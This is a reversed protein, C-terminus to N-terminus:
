DMEGTQQFHEVLMKMKLIELITFVGQNASNSLFDINRLYEQYAVLTNLNLNKDVIFPQTYCSFFFNAEFCTVPKKQLLLLKELFRLSSKGQYILDMIEFIQILFYDPYKEKYEKLKKDFKKGKRKLYFLELFAAIPVDGITKRFTDIAEKPNEDDFICRLVEHFSKNFVDSDINQVGISLSNPLQDDAIPKLKLKEEFLLLQKDVEEEDIISYTIFDCLVMIRKTEEESLTENNQEKSFLEFFLKKRGEEGM